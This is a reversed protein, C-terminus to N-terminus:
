PQQQKRDAAAPVPGQLGRLIDDPSMAIGVDKLNTSLNRAALTLRAVNRATPNTEAAGAAVRFERVVNGLVPMQKAIQRAERAQSTAGAVKAAAGGVVEGMFGGGPLVFHGLGASILAGVNSGIAGLVRSSMSPKYGERAFTATNSWNAGAQPIEIQRMLNAYQQLLAREDASYLLGAMEKGDSNLFRNLRQAVTGPGLDKVGEGTEILRSLLGQKVASWEPSKDGLIQKIRNVVGVNLSAPNVGAAGYMYDAVDNPIAAPNDRNGLIKQMMGSVRDKNGGTPSGFTRRYDAHTERAINWAKVARPDGRFMGSNIAADIEADFADLVKKAARSDAGGAAFADGRFASLRKRMQDIGKLTVGGIEVKDGAPVISTSPAQARNQIRLQSVREDLDRMMQAANPTLKDDIIVPEDGKSLNTRIRSSMSTFTDPHIEGPLERATKYAADVDAKRAAATSQVSRSVIDGAEQPSQAVRSGAPDLSRALRDRAAAIQEAQQENFAKAAKEAPPGSMGRAAAQERQILPLDRGAQGASLIVGPEPGTAGEVMMREPEAVKAVRAGVTPVKKVPLALGLAFDTVGAPVGTAKEIPQGAYQDIAANIPSAVAGLAGLAVNTGGAVVDLPAFGYGEGPEHTAMGPQPNKLDDRWERAGQALQRGGRATREVAETFTQKLNDWYSAPRGAHTQLAAAIDEQSTGEPFEHRHGEFEVIM